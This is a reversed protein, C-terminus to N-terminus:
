VILAINPRRSDLVPAVTNSGSFPDRIKEDLLLLSAKDTKTSLEVAFTQRVVRSKVM